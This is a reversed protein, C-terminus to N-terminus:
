QTAFRNVMDMTPWEAAETNADALGYPPLAIDHHLTQFVFQYLPHRAEFWRQEATEVEFSMIRHPLDGAHKLPVFGQGPFVDSFMLRQYQRDIPARGAIVMYDVGVMHCYLFFSKFLATKVLRGAADQTVGLRTAEALTTNCFPAPLTVSQELTLPRHRNTQIRMTGLPSGDLKSEALLIVVGPEHDAVEARLLSQAFEPLHRAYAEHRIQVAKDLDEQSNVLKITFPLWEEKLAGRQLAVPARVVEGVRPSLPSPGPPVTSFANLNEM